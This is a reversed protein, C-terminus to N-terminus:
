LLMKIVNKSKDTEIPMLVAENTKIVYNPKDM